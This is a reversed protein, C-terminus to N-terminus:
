FYHIHPTPQLVHCLVDLDVQEVPVFEDDFHLQADLTLTRTEDLVGVFEVVEDIFQLPTAEPGDDLEAVDPHSAVGPSVVEGFLDM